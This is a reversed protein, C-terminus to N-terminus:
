AATRRSTPRAPLRRGGRLCRSQRNAGCAVVDFETKLDGSRNSTSASACCACGHEQAPEGVVAVAEARVLRRDGGRALLLAICYRLLPATDADPERRVAQADDRRLLRRSGRVRSHIEHCPMALGSCGRSGFCDNRACAGCAQIHAIGPTRQGARRRMRRHCLVRGPAASTVIGTPRIRDRAVAPVTQDHRACHRWHLPSSRAEPEAIVLKLFRFRRCGPRPGHAGRRPEGSRM